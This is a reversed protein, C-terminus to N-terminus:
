EVGQFLRGMLIKMEEDKAKAERYMNIFIKKQKSLAQIQDQIEVLMEEDHGLYYATKGLHKFLRMIRGLSNEIKEIDSQYGM